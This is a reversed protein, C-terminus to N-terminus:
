DNAAEQKLAHPFCFLKPAVEKLKAAAEMADAHCKEEMEPSCEPCVNPLADTALRRFHEHDGNSALPLAAEYLAHLFASLVSCIAGADSACKLAFAHPAGGPEDGPQGMAGLFEEASGAKLGAIEAATIARSILGIEENTLM